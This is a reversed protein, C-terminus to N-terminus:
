MHRTAITLVQRFSEVAVSCRATNMQELERPVLTSAARWNLVCM